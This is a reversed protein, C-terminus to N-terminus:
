MSYQGSPTLVMDVFNIDALDPYKIGVLPCIPSSFLSVPISTLGDTVHPM